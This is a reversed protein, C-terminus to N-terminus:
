SQAHKLLGSERLAREASGFDSFSPAHLGAELARFLTADVDAEVIKRAHPFIVRRFEGRGPRGRRAMVWPPAKPRQVREVERLLAPLDFPAFVLTTGAVLAGSSAQPDWAEEIAMRAVWRGWEYALVPRTFWLNADFQPLAAAELVRPGVNFLSFPESAERDPRLYGQLLQDIYPEGGHAILLPYGRPFIEQMAQCVDAERRFAEDEIGAFQQPGFRQPEALGPFHAALAAQPAGLFERRFSADWTLRQTIEYEIRVKM